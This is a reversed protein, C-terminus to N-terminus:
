RIERVLQFAEAYAVSVAAGRVRAQARLMSLSRPLPDPHVEAEYLAMIELKRELQETIDEYVNPLFANEAFPPAAETESAVEMMLVRRVGRERMYFAKFVAQCADFVVRHDSHVDSRNPLYVTEPRLAKVAAEIPAILDTLPLTELLTAPLGPWTMSSFPYAKNAREVQEKQQQYVSDPVGPAKAATVILWHVEEGRALHKLLTGGAGLTEDDPHVAVVLASM